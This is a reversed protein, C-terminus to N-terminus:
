QADYAISPPATPVERQMVLDRQRDTGLLFEHEGVARFGWREYFTIARANREWVGLWVADAGAMRAEDLAWTMLAAGVGQGHVARRAYLRRIEVPRAATVGHSTNGFVLQAYGVAADAVEAMGYRIAPDVLERAQIDPSFSSALHAALDEPTNDAAFSERFTEAGLETLRTADSPAAQRITVLPKRM